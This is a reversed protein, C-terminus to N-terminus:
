DPSHFLRATDRDTAYIHQMLSHCESENQRATVEGAVRAIQRHMRIFGANIRTDLRRTSLLLIGSTVGAATFAAIATPSIVTRVLMWALSSM